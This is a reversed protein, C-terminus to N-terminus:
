PTSCQGVWHMRSAAPIQYLVEYGPPKKHMRLGKLKAEAESVPNYTRFNAELEELFFILIQFAMPTRHSGLHCIWFLRSCHRELIFLVYNFRLQYWGWISRQLRPLKLKCQLIFTRLKHSDSGDFPDLERLKPKSSNNTWLVKGIAETFTTAEAEHSNSFQLTMMQLISTPQDVGIIYDFPRSRSSFQNVFGSATILITSNLIKSFFLQASISVQVQNDKRQPLSLRRINCSPFASRSLLMESIMLRNSEILWLFNWFTGKWFLMVFWIIFWFSFSYYFSVCHSMMPFNPYFYFSSKIRHSSEILLPTSGWPQTHTMTLEIASNPHTTNFIDTFDDSPSVKIHQDIFTASMKLVVWGLEAIPSVIVWVCGQPLVGSRM